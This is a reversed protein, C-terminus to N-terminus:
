LNRAKIEEFLREKGKVKRKTTSGCHTLQEVYHYGVPGKPDTWKEQVKKKKKKQEESKIIGM